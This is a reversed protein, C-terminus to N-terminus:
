TGAPKKPPSFKIKQVLRVIHGNDVYGSIATIARVVNDYKLNYDCDLEVETNDAASAPGRDSGVISIINSHLEAFNVPRENMQMGSLNGGPGAQLRIKITNAPVEDPNGAAASVPMRINFDGEQTVIKFSFLFFTLLQFVIDSMPTMQMEVKDVGASTKRIKM